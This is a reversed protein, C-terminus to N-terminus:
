PRAAPQIPLRQLDIIQLSKSAFNAVLLTRGDTTVCLDRPFGGAAISGLTASGGGEMKAADLVTLSSAETSTGFRNSNGAVVKKGGDIVAVPVPATGVAAEGLRAHASDSILKASDFVLVANQNRATVYLRGGDPSLALRVASCGAPVQAVVAHAPDTAARAVDAIVVAGEPHNPPANAAGRGEPKCAKPWNWEPPASQATSYLWKGDPSFAIAIPAIGTPIKGIEPLTKYGAARAKVLDIMTISASREDSVFLLKDDATIATYIFTARSGGSFTGLILGGKGSTMAQVDLLYLNENAAVAMVKGDHTLAMGFANSPLSLDRVPKVSGATRQFVDIGAKGQGQAVTSVFVWEGDRTSTVAFPSGSLQLTGSPTQAFALAAALLLLTFRM